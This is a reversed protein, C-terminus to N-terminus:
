PLLEVPTGDPVVRAIERVEANTVAICGRTWDMLRHLRGVFAMHNPLGHIMVLGGPDVGQMQARARDRADPYSIHLSLCYGSSEKHHDIVYSGEPTRGDGEAQKAGVPESGLSIPYVRLSRQGAFLELTRDAKRVVVRDAVTADPLASHPWHALAMILAIALVPVVVIRRRLM